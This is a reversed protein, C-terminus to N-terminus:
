LRIRRDNKTELSQNVSAPGDAIACGALRRAVSEHPGDLLVLLDGIADSSELARMLFGFLPGGEADTAGGRLKTGEM